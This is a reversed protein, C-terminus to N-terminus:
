KIHNSPLYSHVDEAGHSFLDIKREWGERGGGGISNQFKLEEEESVTTKLHKGTYTSIM